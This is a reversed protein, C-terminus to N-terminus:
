KNVAIMKVVFDVQQNAKQNIDLSGNSIVWAGNLGDILYLASEVIVVPDFEKIFEGNNQGDVIEKLLEKYIARNRFHSAFDKNKIHAIRIHGSLDPPTSSYRTIREMFLYKFRASHPGAPLQDRMSSIARDEAESYSLLINEKSSYYHYFTGVTIGTNSCIDKITVNEYGYQNILELTVDYIKQKTEMSLLQRKTLPKQVQM